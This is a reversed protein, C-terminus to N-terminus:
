VITQKCPTFRLECMIEYLHPFQIYMPANLRQKMLNVQSDNTRQILQKISMRKDYSSGHDTQQIKFITTTM